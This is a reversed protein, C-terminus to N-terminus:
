PQCVCAYYGVTTSYGCYLLYSYGADRCIADTCLSTYLSGSSCFTLYNGSCRNQSNSCTSCAGCDSPCSSCTESGNCSRDGCVPSCRGLTCSQGSGCVVGCSGCNGNTTLSTECGDSTSGNCDGFGTECTGQACVGSRCLASAHSFNCSRGCVGCNMPDLQVDLCRDGCLTFGTACSIGCAMGDCTSRGNMPLACPTCAMGCSETAMNSLCRDGCRHFGTNCVFSCSMGDCNSAGNLPPAVCPMCSTGCSEISRDAFCLDGCRHFGTSCVISCSSGDCRSAGHEVTPCATCAMGCSDTAMNSLCRDACRHFGPLCSFGCAVGNCTGIANPPPAPCASCSTGCNEISTDSSCLSGCRHFGPNCTVSCVGGVCSTSGNMSTPCTRGCGGCHEVSTMPDVCSMSCRLPTMGRCGSECQAGSTGGDETGMSCLPTPEHCQIGCGGCNTVTMLETECGSSAIGDCDGRGRLCADRIVCLGQTCRALTPSVGPLRGCDSGCGGCNTIEVQLDICQGACRTFGTPCAADAM